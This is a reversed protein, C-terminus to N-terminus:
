RDAPVQYLIKYLKVGAVGQDFRMTGCDIVEVQYRQIVDPEFWKGGWSILYIPDGNLAEWDVDDIYVFEAERLHSGYLVQFTDYNYLLQKEGRVQELVAYTDDIYSNNDLLEARQVGFSSLALVALWIAFPYSSAPPEEEGTRYSYIVALFLWFGGLAAFVYRDDWFHESATAILRCLVYSLFLNGACMSLFLMDERRYQKRRVWLLCLGLLFLATVMLSSGELDSASIWRCLEGLDLQGVDVGGTTGMREFSRVVVLIWPLYATVTAACALLFTKCAKRNWLLLGALLYGYIVALPVATFYHTYVGGLASLVFLLWDAKRGSHLIDYASLACGTVFFLAMSYMRINVAYFLLEPGLGIALQFLGAAAMGWNKRVKTVGLLMTCVTFFASMMKLAFVGTGFVAGFMRLVLYYLPPHIDQATMRVMETLNYRTILQISYAEDWEVVRTHSLCAMLCVIVGTEALLLPTQWRKLVEWLRTRGAAAKRRPWVAAAACIFFAWLCLINRRSLPVGYRFNLLAQGEILADGMFFQLCGPAHQGEERTYIGYLEGTLGEEPSLRLQYTEGTRLWQGIPVRYFSADPLTEADIGRSVLVRDQGDLLELRLTGQPQGGSLGLAFEVDELRASQATFTQVFPADGRITQETEEYAVGLASSLDITRRILCFPWVCLMLLIGAAIIILKVARDRKITQEM